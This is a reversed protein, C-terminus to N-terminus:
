EFDAANAHDRPAAQILIEVGEPAFRVVQYPDHTSEYWSQIKLTQGNQAVILTLDLLNDGSMLEPHRVAFLSMDGRVTLNCTAFVVAAAPESDPCITFDYIELREINIDMRGAKVDQRILDFYQSTKVTAALEETMLDYGALTMLDPFTYKARYIGQLFERFLDLYVQRGDLTMKERVQLPFPLYGFQDPDFRDENLYKESATIQCLLMGQDYECGSLCIICFFYIILCIQIRLLANAVAKKRGFM